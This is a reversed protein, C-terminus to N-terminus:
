TVVAWIVWVVIMVLGLIFRTVFSLGMGWMLAKTIEGAKERDELRRNEMFFLVVPAAILGGIPPFVFTFIVAAGLTDEDPDVRLYTYYVRPHQHRAM